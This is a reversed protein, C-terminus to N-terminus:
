GVCLALEMVPVVWVAFVGFEYVNNLFIITNKNVFFVIIQNGKKMSKLLLPNKSYTYKTQRYFIFFM